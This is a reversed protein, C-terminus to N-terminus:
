DVHTLRGLELPDLAIFAGGFSPDFQTGLAEDIRQMAEDHTLAARYPRDSTMADYADALAFIRAALPIAGGRRGCPYGLGDWREHHCAIVDRAIGDIFTLPAVIREGLVPHTRMISLETHDLPGPKHLVCDAIGIKGVDHLLFGYRLAPDAALGPAVVATLELAISCVRELHAGIAEDRLEVAAVLALVTEEHHRDTPM